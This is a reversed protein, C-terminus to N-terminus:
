KQITPDNAFKLPYIPLTMIEQSGNYGQITFSFTVPGFKTGDFDIQYCTIVFDSFKEPVRYPQTTYNRNDEPPSLYPRGGTVHLVRFAKLPKQSTIVEEGPQFIYWLDSFYIQSISSNEFNKLTNLDNDMFQILCSLEKYAQETGYM